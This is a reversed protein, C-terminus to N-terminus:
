QMNTEHLFPCHFNYCKGRAWFKCPISYIDHRYQCHKLMCGNHLFDRCPRREPKRKRKRNSLNKRNERKIQDIEPQKPTDLMKEFRCDVEENDVSSQSKFERMGETNISKNGYDFAWISANNRQFFFNYSKLSFANTQPLADEQMMKM